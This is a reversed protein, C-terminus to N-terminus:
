EDVHQALHSDEPAGVFAAEDDMLETLSAQFLGSPRRLRQIALGGLAVTAALAGVALWVVAALRDPTDWFHIIVGLAVLMLTVGLFMCALLCALLALLIRNKEQEIELGLLQLRMRLHAAVSRALRALSPVLGPTSAEPVAAM